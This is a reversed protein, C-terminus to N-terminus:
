SRKGLRDKSDELFDEYASMLFDKQQSFDDGIADTNLYEDLLVWIESAEQLDTNPRINKSYTSQIDNFLARARIEYGRTVYDMVKAIDNYFDNTTKNM